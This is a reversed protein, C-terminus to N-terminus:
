VTREMNAVRSYIELTQACVVKADFQESLRQNAMRMALRRDPDQYLNWIEQGLREGSLDEVEIRIGNGPGLIEELAGVPTYILPLGAAMSEIVVTPFGEAHFSPFVFLDSQHFATFKAEGEVYGVLCVRDGLDHDVVHAKVAEYESGDGACIVEIAAQPHTRVLWRVAEMLEWVGKDAALRSLFLVRFVGNQPNEGAQNAVPMQYKAVDVMLPLVQVCDDQWGAQILQNRFDLALVSSCDARQLAWSLLRGAVTRNMMLLAVRHDWGHFFQFVPKGLV